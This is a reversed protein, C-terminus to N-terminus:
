PEARGRCMRTPLPVPPGSIRKFTVRPRTEFIAGPPKPGVTLNMSNVEDPWVPVPTM